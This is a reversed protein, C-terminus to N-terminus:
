MFLMQAGETQELFTSIGTVGDVEDVLMDKAINHFTMAASCAYIKKDFGKM